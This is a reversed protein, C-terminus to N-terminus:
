RGPKRWVWWIVGMAALGVLYASLSGSSRALQVTDGSSPTSTVEFTREAMESGRSAVLTHRGPLAVPVSLQWIGSATAQATGLGQGDLTLTVLQGGDTQGSVVMVGAPMTGSQVPSLISIM